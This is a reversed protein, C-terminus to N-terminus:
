AAVQLAELAATIEALKALGTALVRDYEVWDITEGKRVMELKQLTNVLDCGVKNNAVVEDRNPLTDLNRWNKSYGNLADMKNWAAFARKSGNKCRARANIRDIYAQLTGDAAAAEARECTAAFEADKQPLTNCTGKCGYCMDGHMQNFSYRGSGGCRGCVVGLKMAIIRADLNKETTKLTIALETRTM